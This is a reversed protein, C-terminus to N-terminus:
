KKTSEININLVLYEVKKKPQVLLNGDGIYKFVGLDNEICIPNERTPQNISFKESMLLNNLENEISKIIREVETNKM